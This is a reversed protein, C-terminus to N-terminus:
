SPARVLTVLPDGVNVRGRESVHVASVTGEGEASVENEMKMAEIVVLPAGAAVRDGQRVLVRSVIGCMASSLTREGTVEPLRVERLLRERETEVRARVLTGAGSLSVRIAGGERELTLPYSRGELLLSFTQLSSGIPALDARVPRGDVSVRPGEPGDAIEVLLSRGALEVFYRSV